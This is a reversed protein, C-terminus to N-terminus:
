QRRERGEPGPLSPNHWQKAGSDHKYFLDGKSSEALYWGTPPAPAEPILPEAGYQKTLAKFLANEHGAFEKLTPIVSPLKSPNYYQYFDILRRRQKPDIGLRNAIVCPDATVEARVAQTAAITVDKGIQESGNNWAYTTWNGKHGHLDFRDKFYTLVRGGPRPDSSAFTFGKCDTCSRALQQAEALTVWRPSGLIEGGKSIYGRMPVSFPEPAGPAAAPPAAPELEGAAAATRPRRPPSLRSPSPHAAVAAPVLADASAAPMRDAQAQQQQLDDWMAEHESQIREMEQQLRKHLTERLLVVVENHRTLVTQLESIESTHYTIREKLQAIDGVQTEPDYVLARPVLGFAQPHRRRSAFWVRWRSYAAWRACLEVQYQLSSVNRLHRNSRSRARKRVLVWVIWSQLYRRRTLTGAIWQLAQVLHTKHQELLVPRPPRQDRRASERSATRSVPALPLTRIPEVEPELEPEAAPPPSCDFADADVEDPALPM